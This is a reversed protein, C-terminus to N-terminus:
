LKSESDRAGARYISRAMLSTERAELARLVLARARHAAAPAGSAAAALEAIELAVGLINGDTSRKARSVLSVAHAALKDAGGVLEALEAGVEAAPVPLLHRVDQTFWGAYRRWLTAVFWRPDDYRPSLYPLSTLERPIPTSAMIRGLPAGANIGDLAHRCVGELLLAQNTFAERVRGEGVVPPGHGPFVICPRLDVVFRAAEAWEEPFRQVKQPNGANPANWIFFDGVFCFRHEPMWVIVADDTEGKGHYLEFREGGVQLVLHEKFTKDPYRFESPFEYSDPLQFQRRNISTNYGRTKRYRDFRGVCNEHAIVQYDDDAQDEWNMHQVAIHDIHGHTYICTHLRKPTYERLLSHIRSAAFMTGADIMVLGESTEVVHCNAMTLMSIVCGYRQAVGPSLGMLSDGRMLGPAGQWAAEAIATLPGEPHQAAIDRAVERAALAEKVADGIEWGSSGASVPSPQLLRRCALREVQEHVAAASHCLCPEADYRHWGVSIAVAM